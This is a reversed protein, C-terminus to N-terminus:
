EVLPPLATVGANQETGRWDMGRTSLSLVQERCSEKKGISHGSGSAMETVGRRRASDKANRISLELAM